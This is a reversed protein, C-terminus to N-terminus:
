RHRGEVNSTGHQGNQPDNNLCNVIVSVDITKNSLFLDLSAEIDGIKEDPNGNETM